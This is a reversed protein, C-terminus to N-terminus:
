MKQIFYYFKVSLQALVGCLIIQMQVRDKCMFCWGVYTVRRRVINDDMLIVGRTALWSFVGKETGKSDM